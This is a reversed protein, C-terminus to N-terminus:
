IFFHLHQFVSQNLEDDFLEFRHRDTLKTEYNAVLTPATTSCSGWWRLSSPELGEATAPVLLFPLPMMVINLKEAM